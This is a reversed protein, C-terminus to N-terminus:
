LCNWRYQATWRYFTWLVRSRRVLKDAYRIHIDRGTVACPHRHLLSVGTYAARCAVRNDPGCYCGQIHSADNGPTALCIGQWVCHLRQQQRGPQRSARCLVSYLSKYAIHICNIYTISVIYISQINLQFVTSSSLYHSISMMLWSPAHIEDLIVPRRPETQFFPTKLKRACLGAALV